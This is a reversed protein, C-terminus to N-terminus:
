TDRWVSMRAGLGNAEITRGLNQRTLHDTPRNPVSYWGDIVRSGPRTSILIDYRVDRPPIGSKIITRSIQDPDFWFSGDGGSDSYCVDIDWRRILRNDNPNYIELTMMTLDGDRLWTEVGRSVVGWLNMFKDPNLGSAIIIGKMSRLMNDTVYTVSHTYSYTVVEVM